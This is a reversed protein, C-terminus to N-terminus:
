RVVRFNLTIAGPIISGGTNNCVKANVNGSTPYTIISLMGSASPIYGTVATPDGNFSATMTDTTLTGTAAVTVVTACTASTIASTGLTMTGSAITAAGGTVDAPVLARLKVQGAGGNPTALTLNQAGSPPMGLACPYNTGDSGASLFQAVSLAVSTLGCLTSTTPTITTAATTPALSFTFGTLFGTTGAQPLTVTTAGGNTMQVLKTNDGALISYSVGSQSNVVATSGITGTGTVPSPTVVINATSSTLSLSGGGGGGSATITQNPWSGTITINTGAILGPASTGTGGNGIPLIGTVGTSLPLGTANTLISGAAVTGLVPNTLTPNTQLVNNGSGTNAIGTISSPGTWQAAQGSIPSGTVTVQALASGTAATAGLCSAVLLRMWMKM